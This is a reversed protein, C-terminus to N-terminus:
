EIRETSTPRTLEAHLRDVVDLLPIAVDGNQAERVRGVLHEIINSRVLDDLDRRVLHSYAVVLEAYVRALDRHGPGAVRIRNAQEAAAACAAAVFGVPDGTRLIVISEAM